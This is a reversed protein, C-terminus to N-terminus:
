QQVCNPVANGAEMLEYVIRVACDFWDVQPHSAKPAINNLAPIGNRSEASALVFAVGSAWHSFTSPMAGATGESDSSAGLPPVGQEPSGQRLFLRTALLVQVDPDLPPGPSSITIWWTIGAIDSGVDSTPTM